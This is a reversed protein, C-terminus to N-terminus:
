DNCDSPRLCTFTKLYNNISSLKKSLNKYVVQLPHCPDLGFTHLAPYGSLSAHQLTSQSNLAQRDASVHLHIHLRTLKAKKQTESKVQDKIPIVKPTKGKPINQLPM